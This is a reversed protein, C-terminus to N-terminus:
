EIEKKLEELLEKAKRSLRKPTKIKVRVIMDGFGRRQLRPMGKGELRISTGSEIG